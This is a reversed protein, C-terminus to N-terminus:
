LVGIVAGTIRQHFVGGTGQCFGGTGFLGAGGTQPLLRDKGTLFFDTGGPLQATHIQDAGATFTVLNVAAPHIVKLM